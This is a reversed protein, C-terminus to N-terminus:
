CAVLRLTRRQIELEGIWDVSGCAPCAPATRLRGCLKATFWVRAGCGRCGHLHIMGSERCEAGPRSPWQMLGVSARAVSATAATRILDPLADTVERTSLGATALIEMTATVENIRSNLM